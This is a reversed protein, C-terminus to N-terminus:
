FRRLLREIYSREGRPRKTEGARRRLEREIEEVRRLEQQEPIDVDSLGLGQHAGGGFRGFPDSGLGEGYEDSDGSFLGPSGGIQRALQATADKSSQRLLEVAKSQLPVADSIANRTLARRADEMMREAQGLGGPIGGLIRDFDVMLDGLQRRLAEQKAAGTPPTSPTENYTGRAQRSELDRLLEFSQDLLSQQKDGIDKLENMLRYAAILDEASRNQGLGARMNDLIRQLDSLLQRAGDRAGSRAMRRAMEIMKKLDDGRMVNDHTLSPLEDLGKRAMEAALATLYDDLAERLEDMLREIEEIDTGDRLADWLDQRAKHMRREVIPMDGDEIRLATDWLIERITAIAEPRMDRILRARAVSLALSVINDNAYNGPNDAIDALANAIPARLMPPADALRKRQAVIAKAVPHSFRREPLVFERTPSAGIQGAADAAELKIHVPMGAWEHATLDESAGGTVTPANQRTLPFTLREEKFGERTKEGDVRWIVATVSSVGYDDAARYELELHSDASATPPAKFDAHPSQDPLVRLPWSSVTGGGIRVAIRDGDIITAEAKHGNGKNAGGVATFVFREDGIALVPASMMGRAHALVTSMTPVDIPAPEQVIEKKASKTESQDRSWRVFIPAKGTYAPPTIWLDVEVLANPTAGFDPVVARLLRAGTQNWGAAVGVILLLPVFFRLGRPDRAPMDAKPWGLRLDTASAAMRQQHLRWLSESGTDGRGAALEDELATLPRHKVGSDREIRRRALAKAIPQATGRALYVTWIMASAFVLLVVIHLWVPLMPLVDLLAVGVFVVLLAVVPWIRPWAREWWLSARALLLLVRYHNQKPVSM